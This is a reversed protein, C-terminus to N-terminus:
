PRVVRLAVASQVDSLAAHGRPPVRYIPSRGRDSLCASVEEQNVAATPRRLHSPKPLGIACKTCWHADPRMQLIRVSM